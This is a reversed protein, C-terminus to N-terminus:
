ADDRCNSRRYIFLRFLFFLNDQILNWRSNVLYFLAVVDSITCHRRQRAILTDAEVNIIDTVMVEGMLGSTRDYARSSLGKHRPRLIFSPFGLSLSPLRPLVVTFSFFRNRTDAVGGIIDALSLPCRIM